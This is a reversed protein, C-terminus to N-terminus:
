RWRGMVVAAMPLIVTVKMVMAAAIVMMEGKREIWGDKRRKRHITTTLKTKAKFGSDDDSCFSHAPRSTM